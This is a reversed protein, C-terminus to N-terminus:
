RARAGGALRPLAPRPPAARRPLPPISGVVVGSGAAGACVRRALLCPDNDVYKRRMTLGPCISKSHTGAALHRARRAHPQARPSARTRGRTRLRTEFAATAKGRGVRSAEQRRGAVEGAASQLYVKQSMSCSHM